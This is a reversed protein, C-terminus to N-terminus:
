WVTRKESTVGNATAGILGSRFAAHQGDRGIVILDTQQGREVIRDDAIGDVAECHCDVGESRALEMVRRLAAEARSKLYAELSDMSPPAVGLGDDRFGRVFRQEVISLGTLRARLRSALGIGFKEAVSSADSGDTALAITSIM